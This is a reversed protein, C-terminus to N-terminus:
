ASIVGATTIVVTGPNVTYTGDPNMTYTAAPVTVTSASGGAPLTLVGGEYTFDTFPVGGVTVTLSQPAPDFADTLVVNTAPTNGYNQLTFTYTLVEGPSLEDPSMDKLIVLETGAAATVTASATVAPVGNADLSVTNTIEADAAPSAYANPTARYILMGVGGAPLDPLTFLAGTAQVTPTLETVFVGNLYYQAPAAYDLPRQAGGGLDDNLTVGTLTAAGTNRYTVIYTIPEGIAYEGGLATKTLALPDLLLATALNSVATGTTTGSQYSAVARNTILTPM